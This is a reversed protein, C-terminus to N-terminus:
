PCPSGVRNRKPERYTHAQGVSEFLYIDDDISYFLRQACKSVVLLFSNMAYKMSYQLKGTYIEFDITRFDVLGSRVCRITANEWELTYESFRSGTCTM